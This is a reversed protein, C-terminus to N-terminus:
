GLAAVFPASDVHGDFLVVKGGEVRFRFMWRGRATKGTKLSAAEFTGVSFVENGAAINEDVEFAVTKMVAGLKAFFEAAGEPGTYDGGWPLSDYERWSANPAVQNLIYAIDGRRFAAFLSEILQLPTM